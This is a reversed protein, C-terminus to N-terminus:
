ILGNFRSVQRLRIGPMVQWSIIFPSHLSHHPQHAALKALYSLKEAGLDRACFRAAGATIRVIIRARWKPKRMHAASKRHMVRNSRFSVYVERLRTTTSEGGREYAM